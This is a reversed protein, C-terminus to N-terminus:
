RQKIARDMERKAMKKKLDQRKDGKKKGTGLGIELKAQGRKFYINTPILSYGKERITTALKRIESKHMLLKRTRTPQHNEINGHKYPAIHMNLVYLEGKKWIVYSDLLQAKGDRLSKVETGLLVLGAEYKEEIKYDHFARRNTTVIKIGVDAM